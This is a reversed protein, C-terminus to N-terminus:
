KDTFIHHNDWMRGKNPLYLKSKLQWFVTTPMNEFLMRIGHATKIYDVGHFLYLEAKKRADCNGDDESYRKACDCRGRGYLEHVGYACEAVLEYLEHHRQDDKPKDGRCYGFGSM